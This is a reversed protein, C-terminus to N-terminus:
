LFNLVRWYYTGVRFDSILICPHSALDNRVIMQCHNKCFILSRDHIRVYTM